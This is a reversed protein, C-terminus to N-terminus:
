LRGLKNLHRILSKTVIIVILLLFGCATMIIEMDSFSLDHRNAFVYAGMGFLVSLLLYDLTKLIEIVKDAKEKESM